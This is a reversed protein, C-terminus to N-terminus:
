QLRVAYRYGQFLWVTRSQEIRELKLGPAAQDGEQLVQGNVIAMRHAPNSSYTAGTVTLAPLQERVSPPLENQAFVPGNPPAASPVAAPPAAPPAAPVPPQMRAAPSLPPAPTERVRAPVPAPAPAPTAAPKDRAPEAVRRNAVPRPELAVPAPPQLPTADPSPASVTAPAAVVPPAAIPPAAALVAPSAPAPALSPVPAPAAPPNAGAGAVAPANRQMAWWTGGAALAAVAVVSGGVLWWNGPSHSETRPAAVSQTHLGPVSGRGREAEARRLADLIYSM